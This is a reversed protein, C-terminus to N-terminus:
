WVPHQLVYEYMKTLAPIMGVDLLALDDDSVTLDQPNLGSLDGRFQSVYKESLSGSEDLSKLAVKWFACLRKVAIKEGNSAMFWVVRMSPDYRKGNVRIEQSPCFAEVIFKQNPDHRWYVLTETHPPQFTRGTMARPAPNTVHQKLIRDLDEAKVVVVGNSRSSNLPKIVFMDGGIEQKIKQALDSTYIKPFVGYRPRLHNIGAAACLSQMVLKDATFSRMYRNVLLSHPHDVVFQRVQSSGPDDFKFMVINKVSKPFRDNQLVVSTNSFIRNNALKSFSPAYNGGLKKFYDFAVHEYDDHNFEDHAVRIPQPGVYWVPLGFVFLEDWFAKWIEGKGFVFEHARLGATPGDQFELMKVDGCNFKLDIAFFSIDVPLLKPQKADQAGLYMHWFLMGVFIVRMGSFLNM